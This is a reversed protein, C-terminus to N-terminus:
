WRILAGAVSLGAGTGMILVLDGRSLRGQRNACHLAMPISAAICNGYEGVIDIIRDQAFGLKQVAKLGNGSAQHPVVLAVDSRDLGAKLFLTDLMIAVAKYASRYVGRGNMHFLNHHPETTTANPHHRTGCGKIHTYEAGSPQTSMHWALLESGGDLPTPVLVAAGAGDGILGASEPEAFNRCVSGQEASVLLIRRYAGSTLLSSATHLGVLFSLCTAHISFSPIGDFGLAQQHFVSSDPILQVPTLSCNLILDPPPGDGLAQRAAQAAMDSVTTTCVHRRAVGTAQLIWDESTDCRAAIDAATEVKAPAFFGTSEVQVRM